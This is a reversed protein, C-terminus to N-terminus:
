TQSLHSQKSAALSSNVQWNAVVVAVVARRRFGSYKEEGMYSAQPIDILSALQSACVLLISQKQLKQKIGQFLVRFRSQIDIKLNM